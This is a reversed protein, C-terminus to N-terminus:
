DCHCAGPATRLDAVAGFLSQPGFNGRTSTQSELAAINMEHPLVDGDDPKGHMQMAGVELCRAMAMPLGLGCSIMDIFTRVRKSRKFWEGRLKEKQFLKHVMEETGEGGHCQALVELEFPYGTQLARLRLEPEASIGIKVPRPRPCRHCLPLDRDAM